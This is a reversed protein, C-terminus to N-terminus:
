AHMGPESPAFAMEPAVSHRGDFNLSLASSPGRFQAKNSLVFDAMMSPANSTITM